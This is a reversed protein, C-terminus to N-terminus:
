KAGRAMLVGGTILLVGGAIFGAPAYILWAGYSIAAAGSLLLSDPAANVLSARAAAAGRQLTQLFQNM